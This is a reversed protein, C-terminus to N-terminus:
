AGVGLRRVAAEASLGIHHSKGDITRITCNTGYDLPENDSVSVVHEPNLYVDTRSSYVPLKALKTIM